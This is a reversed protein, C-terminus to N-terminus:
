GHRSERAARLPTIMATGMPVTELPIRHPTGDANAVCTWLVDQEDDYIDEVPMGMFLAQVEASDRVSMPAFVEADRAGVDRILVPELVDFDPGRYVSYMFEGIFQAAAYAIVSAVEEFQVPHLDLQRATEVTRMSMGDATAGWDLLSAIVVTAGIRM